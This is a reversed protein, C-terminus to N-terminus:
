GPDERVAGGGHGDCVRLRGGAAGPQEHRPLPPDRLASLHHRPDDRHDHDLRPLLGVGAAQAADQLTGSSVVLVSYM